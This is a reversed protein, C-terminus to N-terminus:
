VINFNKSSIIYDPVIMFIDLYLITDNRSDKKRYIKFECNPYLEKLQKKIQEVTLAVSGMANMQVYCTFAFAFKKMGEQECEKQEIRELDNDYPIIDSLEDSMKDLFLIRTM